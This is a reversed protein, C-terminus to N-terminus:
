EWNGNVREKRSIDRRVKTRINEMLDEPNEDKDIISLM